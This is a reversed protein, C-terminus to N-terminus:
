GRMRLDTPSMKHLLDERVDEPFMADWQKRPIRLDRWAELALQEQTKKPTGHLRRREDASFVSNKLGQPRLARLRELEEPTLSDRVEQAVRSYTSEWRSTTWDLDFLAARARRRLAEHEKPPLPLATDRRPSAM